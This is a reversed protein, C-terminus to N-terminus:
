YVNFKGTVGELPLRSLLEAIRIDTGGNGYVNSRDSRAGNIQDLARGIASTDNGVDIVNSNRERLNQRSGVNVVPTGFSAAEIIGSSSNGIMVDAIGMWNVFLSRELHTVIKLGPSGARRELVARIHESGGDSNPKVALTEFGRSALADLIADATEGAIEAEQLVPHYVFLALKRSHNLGSESALESRSRYVCDTLGVLGPAGVPFIQDSREGMRSLREAAEMTATFHIHSLKSIAHRIPEDITGSREGGHIHAVPVNLHIAAIAGALMEGRDGLLLLIDPRGAKIANTFGSIMKAIGRAMAAGSTENEHSVIRAVIEFGDAEIEDVTHGFRSDLHMGAVMMGLHLDQHNQIARLTTRMLGYDARTGSVYWITRTM